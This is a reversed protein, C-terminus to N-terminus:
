LYSDKYLSFSAFVNHMREIESWELWAHMIIGCNFSGAGELHIVELVIRSHYIAANREESVM